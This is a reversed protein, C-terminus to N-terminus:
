SGKNLPFSVRAMAGSSHKLTFRGPLLYASVFSLLQSPTKMATIKMNGVSCFLLSFFFFFFVSPM